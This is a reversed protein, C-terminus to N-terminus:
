IVQTTLHFGGCHQCSYVRFNQTMIEAGRAAAAEHSSFKVKRTRGCRFGLKPPKITPRKEYGRRRSDKWSDSM